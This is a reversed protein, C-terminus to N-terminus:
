KHYLLMYLFFRDIAHLVGNKASGIPQDSGSGLHEFVVLSHHGWSPVRHRAFTDYIIKKKKCKYVKLKNM